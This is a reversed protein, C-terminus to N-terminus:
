RKQLVIFFLCHFNYVIFSLNQAGISLVRGTMKQLRNDLVGETHGQFTM